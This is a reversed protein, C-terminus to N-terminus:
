CVGLRSADYSDDLGLGVPFQPGSPYPWTRTIVVCPLPVFGMTNRLRHGAEEEEM